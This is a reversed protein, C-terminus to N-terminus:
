MLRWCRLRAFNPAANLYGLSQALGADSDDFEHNGLAFADFCVQNMLDADVQVKFSTYYITGTIADGDFNLAAGTNPELHSHHDNIHIIALPTYVSVYDDTAAVVDDFITSDAGVAALLAINEEKSDNISDVDIDGPRAIAIGSEQSCLRISTTTVSLFLSARM